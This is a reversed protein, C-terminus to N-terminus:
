IRTWDFIRSFNPLQNLRWMECTGFKLTRKTLFFHLIAHRMLPVSSDRRSISEETGKVCWSGLSRPNIQKIFFSWIRKRIKESTLIWDQIRKFFRVGLEYIKEMVWCNQAAHCACLLSFLINPPLQVLFHIMYFSSQQLHWYTHNKSRESRTIYYFWNLLNRGEFLVRETSCLM